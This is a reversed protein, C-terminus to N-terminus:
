PKEFSLLWEFSVDHFFIGEKEEGRQKGKRAYLESEGFLFLGRNTRIFQMGFMIRSTIEQFTGSAWWALGTVM